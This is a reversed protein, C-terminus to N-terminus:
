LGANARCASHIDGLPLILTSPHEPSQLLKIHAIAADKGTQEAVPKMSNWNKEYAPDNLSTLVLRIRSGKPARMAFWQGPGFHYEEPQNEHIHEPHEESNRYRARLVAESLIHSKGDSSVLFLDARLDTDPTDISLWLKLDMRGSLETDESLPASHFVLGNGHLKPVSTVGFTIANADDIPTYVATLDNPDSVWEGGVANASSSQLVGSHYQSTADGHVDLFYKATSSTADRISDASKWCEAGPGAVYYEYNKQLFAPKPAGKMTYDYWQRLLALTDILSAPGFHEGGVDQKPRVTGGHDWPGMILFDQASNAPNSTHDANYSLEGQQDGDNTGTFELVPIKIASAMEKTGGRARWYGDMDPHKLWTQFLQSKTGLYSDLDEFAAKDRYLGNSIQTWLQADGSLGENAIHGSTLTLWQLDYPYVMRSTGPFDVGARASATPVITVLHPPHTMAVQWQDGGAYSAGQMAVKGNCWTQKALWEVVDYGDQGDHVFPDFVGESEGRGRVDVDVYIYGHSGFYKGIKENGAIGVYPTLHFVVPLPQTSHYPEIVTANLHVKDRMAIKVHMQVQVASTNEEAYSTM